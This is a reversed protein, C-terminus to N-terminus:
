SQWTLLIKLNKLNLFIQFVIQPISIFILSNITLFYKINLQKRKDIINFILILLSINLIINFFTGSLIEKYEVGFYPNILTGSLLLFYSALTSHFSSLVKFGLISKQPLRFSCYYKFFNKLM